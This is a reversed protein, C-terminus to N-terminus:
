SQAVKCPDLKCLTLNIGAQNIYLQWRQITEDTHEDVLWKYFRGTMTKPFTIGAKDMLDYCYEKNLNLGIFLKLLTEIKVPKDTKNRLESITQESINSRESLVEATLGKRKIHYNVTKHFSGPLEDFDTEYQQSFKMIDKIAAAEAETLENKGDDPKYEVEILSDATVERCLFCARYYSDDYDHNIRKKYHFLFCCEDIHDLAYPTMEPHENENFKIYKPTNLCLMNNVFVIKDKSYLANLTPHAIIMRLASISDTVFSGNKGIVKSNFSFHPIAKGEIRVYVGHAREFDLEVARLKAALRSVQFFNATDQIAQAMVEADRASAPMSQRLEYLRDQIFKKTTTAPMLIKPALANAQWEIWDLPTSNSKERGYSEVVECSICRFNQNLLKKLEFFMRHRKWHVCEHIITNNVSGVNRMFYVDPNILITGASITIDATTRTQYNTYVTVIATDFYTRGFTAHDLPAYYMKLGMNHVIENIPLPMPTEVAAPYHEKLFKEAVNDADESYLYPVFFHDLKSEKNFREQSYEDIKIIRVNHLGNELLSTFYISVWVSKSESDYGYRSKGSISVDITLTLRFDLVNNGTSNFTAGEIHFDEIEFYNVDPVTRSSLFSSGKKQFLFDMIKKYIEDYYNDYM